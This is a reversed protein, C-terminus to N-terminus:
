LLDDVESVPKFEIDSLISSEACLCRPNPDSSCSGRYNLDAAAVRGRLGVVQDGTGSEVPACTLM